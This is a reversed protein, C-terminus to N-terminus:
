LLFPDKDPFSVRTIGTGMYMDRVSTDTGGFGEVTVTRGSRSEIFFEKGMMCTDAGGDILLLQEHSCTSTCIVTNLNRNSSMISNVRASITRSDPEKDDDDDAESDNTPANKVYRTKSPGFSVKSDKPKSDNASHTPM